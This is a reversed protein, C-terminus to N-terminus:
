RMTCRPRASPCCCCLPTASRCAVVHPLLALPNPNPTRVLIECLVMPKTSQSAAHGLGTVATQLSYRELQIYCLASGWLTRM